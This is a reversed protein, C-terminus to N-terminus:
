EDFAIEPLTKISLAGNLKAYPFLPKGNTLDLATFKSGPPILLSMM